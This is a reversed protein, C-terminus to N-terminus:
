DLVKDEVTCKTIVMVTTKKDTAIERFEGKIETVIACDKILFCGLKKM